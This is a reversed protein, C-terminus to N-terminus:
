RDDSRCAGSRADGRDDPACDDLSGQVRDGRWVRRSSQRRARRWRERRDSRPKSPSPRSRLSLRRRRSAEREQRNSCASPDHRPISLPRWPKWRLNAGQSASPRPDVPQESDRPTPGTVNPATSVVTRDAADGGSCGASRIRGDDRRKSTTTHGCQCFPPIMRSRITLRRPRVDDSVVSIQQVNGTRRTLRPKPETMTDANSAAGHSPVILRWLPGTKAATPASSM